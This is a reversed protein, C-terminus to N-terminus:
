KPNTTVPPVIVTQSPTFFNKTLYAFFGGAAAVAINHWDLTFTGAAFSNEVIPIVPTLIAVLAAKAIDKFNLSYQKSTSITENVEM